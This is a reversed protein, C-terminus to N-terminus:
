RRSFYLYSAIPRSYPVAFYEKLLYLPATSSLNGKIEKPYTAFDIKKREMMDIGIAFSKPQEFIKLTGNHHKIFENMASYIYGATVFQGRRNVYYLM